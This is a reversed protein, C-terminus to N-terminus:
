RQENHKCLTKFTERWLIYFWYNLDMKKILIIVFFYGECWVYFFILRFYKTIITTKYYAIIRTTKFM